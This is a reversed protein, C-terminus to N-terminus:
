RRGGGHAAWRRGRGSHPPHTATHPRYAPGGDLIRTSDDSRERGDASVRRRSSRGPATVRRAGPPFFPDPFSESSFQNPMMLRRDASRTRVRMRAEGVAVEAHSGLYSIGPTGGVSSGRAGPSGRWARGSTRRLPIGHLPRSTRDRANGDYPLTPAATLTPATGNATRSSPGARDPFADVM